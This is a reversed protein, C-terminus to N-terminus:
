ECNFQIVKQLLEHLSPALKKTKHTHCFSRDYLGHKLRIMLALRHKQRGTKIFEYLNIMRYSNYIIDEAPYIDLGKKALIFGTSSGIVM